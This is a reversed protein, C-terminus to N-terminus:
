RSANLTGNSISVTANLVRVVAAAVAVAAVPVPEGPNVTQGVNPPGGPSVVDGSQLPEVHQTMRPLGAFALAESAQPAVVYSVPALPPGMVNVGDWPTSAGPWCTFTMM